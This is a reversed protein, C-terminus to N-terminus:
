PDYSYQHGNVRCSVESLYLGGECWVNALEVQNPQAILGCYLVVRHEEPEFRIFEDEYYSISDGLQGSLDSIERPFGGTSKFYERSAEILVEIKERQLEEGGKCPSDQGAFVCESLLIGLLTFCLFSKM